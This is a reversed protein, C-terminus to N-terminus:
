NNRHFEAEATRDPEPERREGAGTWQRLWAKVKEPSGWCDQPAYHHLWCVYEWLLLRNAKDARWCSERLNNELLARLFSGTPVGHEIYRELNDALNPALDYRVPIGDVLEPNTNTM